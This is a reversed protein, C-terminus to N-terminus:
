KDLANHRGIDERFIIIGDINCMACSHVGGTNLFLESKKNFSRMLDKINDAKISLPREIKKSRFSDLVNYFLTGKGCGSTITRKGRFKENFENVNNVYVYAIGKEDDMRIKDIDSLK